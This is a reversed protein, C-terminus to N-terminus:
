VVTPFTFDAQKDLVLSKDALWKKMTDSVSMGPITLSSHDAMAQRAQSGIDKATTPGVATLYAAWKPNGKNPLDIAM